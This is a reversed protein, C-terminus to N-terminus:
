LISHILFMEALLTYPKQWKSGATINMIMTTRTTTTLTTM